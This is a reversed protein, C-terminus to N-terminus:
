YWEHEEFRARIKSPFHSAAINTFILVEPKLSILLAIDEDDDVSTDKDSILKQPSLILDQKYSLEINHSTRIVVKNDDYSVIENLGSQTELNINM